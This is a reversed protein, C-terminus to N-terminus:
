ERWFLYFGVDRKEIENMLVQGDCLAVAQKKVEVKGLRGEIEYKGDKYSPDLIAIRGDPEENIAVIYHGGISFVGVYGDYSGSTHIVAAGGTRLCFRLSELDNTM